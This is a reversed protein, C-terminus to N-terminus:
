NELEVEVGLDAYLELIRREVEQGLVLDQHRFGDETQRCCDASKHRYIALNIKNIPISMTCWYTYM